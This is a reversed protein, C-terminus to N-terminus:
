LRLLSKFPRTPLPSRHYLPPGKAAAERIREVESSNLDYLGYTIYPEKGTHGKKLDVWSGYREYSQKVRGLANIAKVYLNSKEVLSDFEADSLDAPPVPPPGSQSVQAM